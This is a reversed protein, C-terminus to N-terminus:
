RSGVLFSFFFLVDSSSPLLLLVLVLLDPSSCFRDIAPKSSRESAGEDEKGRSLCVRCRVLASPSFVSYHLATVRKLESLLAAHVNASTAFLTKKSRNAVRKRLPKPVRDGPRGLTERRKRAFQKKALNRGSFYAKPKYLLNRTSFIAWVRWIEFSFLNGFLWIKM